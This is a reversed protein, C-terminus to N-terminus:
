HYMKVADSYIKSSIQQITKALDAFNPGKTMICLLYPHKPYYVIGCDHLQHTGDGVEREGFKHSIVVSAPLNSVLGQKFEAESMLELSKESYDKNLYTSYYLVRFLTSYEAVDMFDDPTSNTATTIGLDITVQDIKRNDINDELLRLAVNDSGVIMSEILQEVTYTQGLIIPNKAQYNQSIVGEPESSFKIKKDLITPDSEALRYYAMMVPVKLLSSPAFVDHQNIGFWPGNNLDRYYVAASTVSNNAMLQGIYNNIQSKLSSLEKTGYNEGTNCEYLPNILTYAGNGSHFESATNQPQNNNSNQTELLNNGFYGILIGAVLSILISYLWKNKFLSM